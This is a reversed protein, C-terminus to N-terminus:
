PGVSIHVGEKEGRCFLWGQPRIRHGLEGSWPTFSKRPWEESRRFCQGQRQVWLNWEHGGGKSVSDPRVTTIILRLSIRGRKRQPKRRGIEWPQTRTKWLTQRFATFFINMPPCLQGIDCAQGKRLRRRFCLSLAIINLVYFSRNQRLDYKLVFHASLDDSLLRGSATM